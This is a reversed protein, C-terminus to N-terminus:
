ALWGTSLRPHSPPVPKRDGRIRPLLRANMHKHYRCMTLAAEGAFENTPMLKAEANTGMDPGEATATENQECSGHGRNKRDTADDNALVRM